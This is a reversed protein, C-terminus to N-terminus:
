VVESQIGIIADIIRSTIDKPPVHIHLGKKIDWAHGQLRM